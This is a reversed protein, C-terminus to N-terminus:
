RTPAFLRDRPNESHLIQRNLNSLESRDSDVIKIRGVGAAALYCAAPGGLGGAGAIVVAAKRLKEQGEEGGGDISLQRTCREFSNNQIIITLM